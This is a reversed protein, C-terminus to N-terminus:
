PARVSNKKKKVKRIAKGNVITKKSVPYTCVVSTITNPTKHLTRICIANALIVPSEARTVMALM